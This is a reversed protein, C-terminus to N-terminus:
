LFFILNFFFKLFNSKKEGTFGANRQIKQQGAINGFRLELDM